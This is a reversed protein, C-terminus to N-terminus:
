GKGETTKRAEQKTTKGCTETEEEEEIESREKNDEPLPYACHGIRVLRAPFRCPRWSKGVCYCCGANVIPDYYRVEGKRWKKM